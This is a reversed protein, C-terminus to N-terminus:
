NWRIVGCRWLMEGGKDSVQRWGTGKGGAQGEVQEWVTGVRGDWGGIGGGTKGGTGRVQGM